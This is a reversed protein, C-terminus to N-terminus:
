CGALQVLASEWALPENINQNLQRALRDLVEFPLLSQEGAPGPRSKPHDHYWDVMLKLLHTREHIYDAQAQAALQKELRELQAPEMNEYVPDDRLQEAAQEKEERVRRLEGLLRGMLTYARFISPIDSSSTFEALWGNLQKRLEQSGSGAAAPRFPIHLCRSLITERLQQAEETLLLIVTGPPPEELTKLFADQAQDQLRDAAHVVAAKVRARAARLYIARELERVQEILIRRSRSEPRMHYVDPHREEAIAHCTDCQGCFDHDNRDCNLSQIFARAVPETEAEEGILLYTHHVRDHSMTRWLLDRVVPQSKFESWPMPFTFSSGPPNALGM